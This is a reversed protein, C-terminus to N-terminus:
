RLVFVSYNEDGLSGDLTGLPQTQQSFRDYSARDYSFSKNLGHTQSFPGAPSLAVGMVFVVPRGTLRRQEFGTQLLEDLTLAARNARTFRVPGPMYRRERALYTQTQPAYYQLPELYVDPDGMIVARSLNPHKAILEGFRASSSVPTKWDRRAVPLVTALQVIFVAALGARMGGDLWGRLKSPSNKVHETAIWALSILFVYIVSHHRPRLTYVLHGFTFVAWLGLAMAIALPWNCILLYLFFLWLAIEGVYGQPGAPAWVTRRNDEEIAGTLEPLVQLPQDYFMKLSWEIQERKPHQTKMVLTSDDPRMVLVSLLVGAAILVVGAALERLTRRGWGRWRRYVLLELLLAVSLAGVMILSHVNTNALLALAVALPLPRNWRERWAICVCAFLLFSIGYNRCMVAMEWLPFLGFLFLTKSSSAFPAHRLFVFAAAAAVAIAAPKLMWPLAAKATAFWLIVYWLLPHGENHLQGYLAFPTSSGSVIQLPRVEDRWLEHHTALVCAALTYLGLPLAWRWWTERRQWLALLRERM